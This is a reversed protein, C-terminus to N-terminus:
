LTRADSTPACPVGARISSTLVGQESRTPRCIQDKKRTFEQVLTVVQRKVKTLGKHQLDNHEQGGRVQRRQVGLGKGGRPQAAHHLDVAALALRLAVAGRRLEAGVAAQDHEAAVHRRAANVVGVDGEHHLHTPSCPWSTEDSEWVGCARGHTRGGKKM